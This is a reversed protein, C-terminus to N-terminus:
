DVQPKPRSVKYRKLKRDLTSREIGLIQAAQSKNWETWDLTKLIHERELQELPIERYVRSRTELSAPKALDSLSSLRIDETEVEDGRCLIVAREVANQLERVNGPWDYDMLLELSQRSFGTVARKAKAASRELFHTALLPVDSRRERLPAVSLEVVHLRFYLDKRFTGEAVAEELDRNTAAVVRVDVRIPTGGGIREFAHGELARLFKAQVSQTMEGVEDLFLTGRHAQEFKGSKQSVAGTFSGKEHGFLESELLSETLAACNMCVIPHAARDSAAHIARAVLEKGVGSEGRILVTADTPAIRLISDRLEEVASSRGVIQEDLGAQLKLDRNEKKLRAMGSVLNERESVIRLSSAMQHAVALTFELDDTTMPREPDQSYLHLLGFVDQEDRIPACIVSRVRFEGLSESEAFASNDELDRALIGDDEDLVLHSLFESVRQYAGDSDCRYYALKLRDPNPKETVAVPAPLLMIGGIDAATSSFLGDLVERCLTQTDRANGMQIALQYLAALEKSVKDRLEAKGVLYKSNRGRALIEAGSDHSSRRGAHNTATEADAFRAVNRVFALVSDGLQIKQGHELEWDGEIREGEVLTGNRSHLDRLTWHTGRLFVECHERSAIDDHLVFGNTPARGITMVRGARLPVPEGWRGDQQLLLFADAKDFSSDPDVRM